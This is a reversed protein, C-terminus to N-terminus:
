NKKAEEVLQVLQLANADVVEVVHRSWADELGVRRQLEQGILNPRHLRSHNVDHTVDLIDGDREIEQALVLEMIINSRYLLM